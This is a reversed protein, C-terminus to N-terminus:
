WQPRRCRRPTRQFLSAVHCKAALTLYLTGLGVFSDYSPFNQCSNMENQPHIGVINIGENRYAQIYKVFYNAYSALYAPEMIFQTIGEKGSLEKALGNTATPRCAYHSNTKMWAPPTWPSGWVQLDPRYKMAMKIYPILREKDRSINFYKMEFDGVSDNLSYYDLAYDNAGIPMRCINLKLGEKPDFLNRVINERAQNDLVSLATWGLENFCAGFGDVTQEQENLLITADITSASLSALKIQSQVWQNTNTTQVWQIQGMVNISSIIFVGM